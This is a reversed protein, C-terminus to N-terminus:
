IKYGLRNQIYALRTNMIGISVIYSEITIEDQTNDLGKYYLNIDKKLENGLKILDDKNTTQEDRSIVIGLLKKVDRMNNGKLNHQQHQANYVITNTIDVVSTM